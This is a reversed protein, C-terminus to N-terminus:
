RKLLKQVKELLDQKNLPKSIFEDSPYWMDEPYIAGIPKSTVVIIPIDSTDKQDRLFQAVDVGEYAKTMAIDLLILDPARDKIQQICEQGNYAAEVAYGESELLQKEIEVFDADDDVVLIRAKPKDAKVSM